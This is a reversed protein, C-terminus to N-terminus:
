GAYEEALEKSIEVWRTMREPVDNCTHTDKLVMEVVNGKTAEMGRRMYDRIYDEDYPNTVLTPIPKWSYIVKKGLKEAAVDIDTWPSISLRRLKPVTDLILDLKDTLDECCAYCNLGFRDLMPAQYKIGFEYYMTPSIGTYEQSEAFGWIDKLGLSGNQDDGPLEKTYCVGGSGAYDNKANSFVLGSADLGDLVKRTGDLMFQFVQALWEPREVMDIMVQELGRLFCVLNVLSTNVGPGRKWRLELLDGVVDHAENWRRNMEPEDVSFEPEKLKEIDSEERLVPDYAAAGRHATSQKMPASLGFGTSGWPPSLRFYPEIVNDDRLVEGHYILHRLYFEHNRWEPDDVVLEDDPLLEKWSGEPFVLIMPKVRELANHRYWMERRQENDPDASLEVVRKALDRILTRHIRSLPM